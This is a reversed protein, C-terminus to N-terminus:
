IYKRLYEICIRIAFWYSHITVKNYRKRSITYNIYQIKTINGERSMWENMIDICLYAHSGGQSPRRGRSEKETRTRAQDVAESNM